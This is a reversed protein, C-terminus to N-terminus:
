QEAPAVPALKLGQKRAEGKLLLSMKGRVLGPDSGQQPSCLSGFLAMLDPRGIYCGQAARAAEEVTGAAVFKRTRMEALLATWQVALQM